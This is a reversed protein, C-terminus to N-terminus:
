QDGKAKQQLERLEAITLRRVEEETMGQAIAVKRILARLRALIIRPDKEM